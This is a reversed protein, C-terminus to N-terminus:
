FNNIFFRLRWQQSKVFKGDHKLTVTALKTYTNTQQTLYKLYLLLLQKERYKGAFLCTSLTLLLFRPFIFHLNDLHFRLELM